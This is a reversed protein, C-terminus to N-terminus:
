KKHKKKKGGKLSFRSKKLVRTISDLNQVMQKHGTYQDSSYEPYFAIRMKRTISKSSISEM